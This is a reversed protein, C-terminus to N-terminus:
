PFMAKRATTLIIVIIAGLGQKATAQSACTFAPFTEMAVCSAVTGKLLADFFLLVCLRAGRGLRSPRQGLVVREPVCVHLTCM